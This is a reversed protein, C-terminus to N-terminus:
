ALVRSLDYAHPVELQEFTCSRPDRDPRWREFQATHRFREGEMQDYRVEVVREPRLRFFSTDKSSSFRNREGEGKVPEGDQDRELLPDLETVLADRTANAFASIGGVQQLTGGETYLAVLLSGVGHGSAHVRYGTVVVDATRHHKVKLMVRKGPQYTSSVPKAVV